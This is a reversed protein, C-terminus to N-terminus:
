LSALSLVGSQGPLVVVERRIEVLVAPALGEVEATEGVALGEVLSDGAVLVVKGVADVDGLAHLNEINAASDAARGALNGLESASVDGAQVVVVVLNLAGGM